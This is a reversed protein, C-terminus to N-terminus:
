DFEPDKGESAWLPEDQPLRFQPGRGRDRDSRGRDRDGRGREQDRRGGARNGGGRDSPPRDQRPGRPGRPGRDQGGRPGRDPGGRPGRDYGGRPGGGGGRRYEGRRPEAPPRESFVEDASAEGRALRGSLSEGELVNFSEGNAASPRWPQERDEYPRPQGEPRYEPRYGGRGGRPGRDQGGRPGRDYRGRPGGRGRREPRRDGHRGQPRSAIPQGDEDVPAVVVYRDEGLGRSFTTIGETELLLHHIVRRDAPNMPPFEYEQQTQVVRQAVRHAKETLQEARKERYGGANLVIRLGCEPDRKQVMLNMMLQLAELTSGHKGILLGGDEAKIDMHLYNEELRDEFQAPIEMADLLGRLLDRAATPDLTKIIQRRFVRFRTLESTESDGPLPEAVLEEAPIEWSHVAEEIAEQASKATIILEESM